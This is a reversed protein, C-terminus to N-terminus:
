KELFEKIEEVTCRNEGYFDKKIEFVSDDFHIEKGLLNEDCVALLVDSGVNFFNYCFM